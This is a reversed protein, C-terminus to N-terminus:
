RTREQGLKAAGRKMGLEFGLGVYAFGPPGDEVDAFEAAAQEEITIRYKQGKQYKVHARLAYAVSSTSDFISAPYTYSSSEDGTEVTLVLNLGPEPTAVGLAYKSALNVIVRWLRKFSALTDFRYWGTRLRATYVHGAVSEVGDKWVAQSRKAVGINTAKYYDGRHFLSSYQTGAHELSFTDVSWRDSDYWYVLTKYGGSVKALLRLCGSKEDLAGDVFYDVTKVTDEIAAGVYIVGLQPTVLWIGQHSRFLVGRPTRWCANVEACGQDQSLVAFRGFADPPLGTASPGAGDLVLISKETFILLSGEISALAMGRQPLAKTQYRSWEIGRGRQFPKTYWLSNTELDILFLRDRHQVLTRCSPAVHNELEGGAIYARETTLFQTGPDSKVLLALDRTVGGWIMHTDSSILAYDDPATQMSRYLNIRVRGTFNFGGEPKSTLWPPRIELDVQRGNTDIEVQAPYSPDSFWRRGQADEWEYIVKYTPVDGAQFSATLGTQACTVIVPRHIFGCEHARDGDYCYPLGCALVTQDDVEAHMWRKPDAYAVNMVDIAWVTVDQATPFKQGAYERFIADATRAERVSALYVSGDTSPSVINAHGANLSLDRSWHAVPMVTVYSGGVVSDELATNANVECIVHGLNTAFSDSASIGDYFASAGSGTAGIYMRSNMVYPHTLMLLGPHQHPGTARVAMAAGDWYVWRWEFHGGSNMSWFVCANDADLAAVFVHRPAGVTTAPQVTIPGRIAGVFATDVSSYTPANGGGGEWSTHLYGGAVYAGPYCNGAGAPGGGATSMRKVGVTSLFGVPGAYGITTRYAVVDRDAFGSGAAGLAVLFFVQTGDTAMTWGRGGRADPSGWLDQVTDFGYDPNQADYIVYKHSVNSSVVADIERWSIVAYRGVSVAMVQCEGSITDDIVTDEHIITRSTTDFVLVHIGPAQQAWGAQYYALVVYRNEATTVTGTRYCYATCLGKPLTQGNMIGFEREVTCNPVKGHARWADSEPSFSWLISGAAGSGGGSGLYGTDESVVFLEEARSAVKKPVGFASAADPGLAASTMVEHGCRRQFSGVKDLEVNELAYMGEPPSMEPTVKELLAGKFPVEIVTKSLGTGM